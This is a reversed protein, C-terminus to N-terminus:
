EPNAADHAVAGRLCDALALEPTAGKGVTVHGGASDPDHDHYARWEDKEQALSVEYNGEIVDISKVRITLPLSGLAVAFRRRINEERDTQKSM